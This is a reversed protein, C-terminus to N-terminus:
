RKQNRDRWTRVAVRHACTPSCYKRKHLTLPRFVNNCARCALSPCANWEDFWIMWTLADWLSTLKYSPVVKLKDSQAYVRLGPAPARIHAQICWALLHKLLLRDCTEVWPILDVQPCYRLQLALHSFPVSGSRHIPSVQDMALEAMLFELLSEREDCMGRAADLLRKVARLWRSHARYEELSRVAFGMQYENCEQGCRLYLPGWARVFGSIEKDSRCNMLQIHPGRQYSGALDYPRDLALESRLDTGQIEVRRCRIWAGDFVVNEQSM